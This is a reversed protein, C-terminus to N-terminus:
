YKLQVTKTISATFNDILPKSTNHERSASSSHDFHFNFSCFQEQIITRRSNCRLHDINLDGCLTHESMETVNVDNLHDELLETVKEIDARPVIYSCTVLTNSMISSLKIAM